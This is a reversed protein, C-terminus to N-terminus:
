KKLPPFDDEYLCFEKKNKQELLREAKIIEKLISTENKNQVIKKINKGSVNFSFTRNGNTLQELKYNEITRPIIGKEISLKGFDKYIRDTINNMELSNYTSNDNENLDKLIVNQIDIMKENLEFVYDKFFINDGSVEIKYIKFTVQM